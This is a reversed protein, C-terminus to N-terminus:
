REKAGRPDKKADDRPRALTPASKDRCIAAASQPPGRRLAFGLVTLVVLRDGFLYSVEDGERLGFSPRDVRQTAGNRTVRVSGESVFRAAASRAKFRRACWLWKDIRRASSEAESM